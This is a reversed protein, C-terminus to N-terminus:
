RPMQGTKRLAEYVIIGAATALNLSRVSNNLVPIRVIRDGYKEFIASDLGTTEPGFLIVDDPYYRAEHYPEGRRSSTLTLNDAGIRGVFQDFSEWVELDVNRWYDLGARKLYKDNLQFGLPKVLHLKAGVAVCLRGINGTNPPIEPKILAVSIM